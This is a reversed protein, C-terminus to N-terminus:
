IEVEFSPTVRSGEFWEWTKQAINRPNRWEDEPTVPGAVNIVGVHVGQPAYTMSLSQVLNRQAAKVLSM